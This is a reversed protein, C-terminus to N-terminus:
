RAASHQGITEHLLKATEPLPAANDDELERRLSAVLNKYARKVANTDGLAAYCRMSGRVAEEDIPDRQLIAEYFQIAMKPDRCDIALKAAGHAATVFRKQYDRRYVEAWEYIEDGLFDGTCLALAREYEVLAEYGHLKEARGLHADFADVDVRFLGSRLHYRQSATVLVQSDVEGVASTLTRRLYYAANSLQHSVQEVDGEPWLAEAVTERLVPTGGHAVLYALLERAKQITWGNVEGVATEVRFSGFLRVRFLPGAQAPSEAEDGPETLPLSPQRDMAPVPASPHPQASEVAEVDLNEVAEENPGSAPDEAGDEDAEHEDASGDIDPGGIV